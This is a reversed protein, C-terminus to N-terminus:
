KLPNVTIEPALALLTFPAPDDSEIVIRADGTWDGEFEAFHEGTFLPAGEDMPNSVVRFDKESDSASAILPIAAVPM